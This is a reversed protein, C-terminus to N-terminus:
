GNGQGKKLSKRLGQVSRLSRWGARRILTERQWSARTLKTAWRLLADESFANGARLKDCLWAFRRLLYNTDAEVRQTYTM